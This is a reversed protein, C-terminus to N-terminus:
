TVQCFGGAQIHFSLSVSKPVPTFYPSSPFLSPSLSTYPRTLLQNRRQLKTRSSRKSCCVCQRPTTWRLVSLYLMYGSSEKGWPNLSVQQPHEAGEVDPPMHTIGAVQAVGTDICDCQFIKLVRCGLASLELDGDHVRHLVNGRFGEGFEGVASTPTPPPASLCSTCYSPSRISHELNGSLTIVEPTEPMPVLAGSYIHVFGLLQVLGKHNNDVLTVYTIHM